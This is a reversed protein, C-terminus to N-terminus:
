KRKMFLYNMVGMVIVLLGIAVLFLAWLHRMLGANVLFIGALGIIILFIGGVLSGYWWLKKGSVVVRAFGRALFLVGAGLILYAWFTPWSVLPTMGSVTIFLILGLYIIFLGLLVANILIWAPSWMWGWKKEVSEPSGWTGWWDGWRAARMAHRRARWGWMDANNDSPKGCKPCFSAGESVEAGCGTCFTM